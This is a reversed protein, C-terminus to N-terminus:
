LIEIKVIANAPAAEHTQGIKTGEEEPDHAIYTGTTVNYEVDVGASIAASGNRVYIISGRRAATFLGGPVIEPTLHNYSVIGWFKDSATSFPAVTPVNKSTAIIKVPTGPAVPSSASPDIQAEEM